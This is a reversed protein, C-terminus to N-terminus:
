QPNQTKPEAIHVTYLKTPNQGKFKPLDEGTFTIKVIDGIKVCSMRSQLVTHSPTVFVKNDKDQIVYQNGFKDHTKIETVVGILVENVERPNWFDSGKQEVWNM